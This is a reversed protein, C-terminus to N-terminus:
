GSRDVLVQASDRLTARDVRPGNAGVVEPIAEIAVIRVPVKYTALRMSCERIASREDLTRFKDALIVFAIPRDVGKDKAAVVVARLIHPMSELVMEIEAPQVLFGSLRLADDSRSVFTLSGSRPVVGLDGTRLWGDDTYRSRDLGAQTLYGAMTNPGRVELEGLEGAKALRGTSRDRARVEIQSNVVDGGPLARRAPSDRVQRRAILAQLESSGYLQFFSIGRSDGEDVIKASDTAFTGFGFHRLSLLCGKSPAARLLGWILQDPGNAHTVKHEDVLRAAKAPDFRRMLVVRCGGAIAALVTNFGLVGCLPLIGFVVADGSYGFARAVARSHWCIASQDHVILKPTGTSGSSTFINSWGFPSDSTLSRIKDTGILRRGEDLLRSRSWSSARNSQHLGAGNVGDLFHAAPEEGPPRQPNGPLTWPLETTADAVLAISGSSRMITAIEPQRYRPNVGVLVAGVSALAFQIELWFISNPLAVAIRSGARVGLSQLAIGIVTANAALEEFTIEAGDEEIIGVAGSQAASRDLLSVLGDATPGCSGTM